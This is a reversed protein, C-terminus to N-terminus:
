NAEAREEFWCPSPLKYASRAGGDNQRTLEAPVSRLPHHRRLRVWLLVITKQTSYKLLCPQRDSAFRCLVSGLRRVRLQSGRCCAIGTRDGAPGTAIHRPRSQWSCVGSQSGRSAERANRSIAM